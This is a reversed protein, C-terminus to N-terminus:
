HAAVCPADFRRQCEADLKRSLRQAFSWGDRGCTVADAFRDVLEGSGLADVSAVSAARECAPLRGPVWAGSRITWWVRRGGLRIPQQYVRTAVDIPVRAHGHELRAVESSDLMLAGAAPHDDDSREDYTTVVRVESPLTQTQQDPHLAEVMAAGAAGGALPLALYADGYNYAYSYSRAPAAKMLLVMAGVGAAAGLGGGIWLPVQRSVRLERDVKVRQEIPTACTREEHVELDVNPWDAPFVSAVLDGQRCRELGRTSSLVTSSEVTSCGALAVFLIPRMRAAHLLALAM